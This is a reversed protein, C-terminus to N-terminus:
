DGEGMFTVRLACTIRRVERVFLIMGYLLQEIHWVNTSRRPAPM